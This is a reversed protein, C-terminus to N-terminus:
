SRVHSMELIMKTEYDEDINEARMSNLLGDVDKGRAVYSKLLVHYMQRNLPMFRKLLSIFPEAEKLNCKEGLSSIIRMVVKANPKWGENEQLSLAVTMCAFARELEGEGLYGEAVRVWISPSAVKGKSRLDKLMNEANAHLGKDIYSTIVACPVRLDYYSGSTEWELLLKQAEELEDLKVLSKLMNIYDQNVCRKCTNKAADWLRLVQAKNGLKAHLSILFNYGDHNKSDLKEEAKVLMFNAKMILGANIYINAIAAYTNWDMVLHTQNEMENLVKEMGDIDSREGFSNICTRYSLNDPYIGHKKMNDLVEPVKEHQGMRTYLAMIDNFVVKTLNLGEEKMKQLHLLAKDIQLQRVYCHLLAGYTKENKDEESLSNFYEEASLFGHVKGILDLRMAHETTTFRIADNRKMWELVELAQSFRRHKRLNLTIRQLEAFRLKNSQRAWEDLEPTISTTPNGLPSIKSYLSAKKGGNTCYSRIRAILATTNVRILTRILLQNRSLM